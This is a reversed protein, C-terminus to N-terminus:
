IYCSLLFHDDPRSNLSDLEVQPLRFWEGVERYDKFEEHLAEEAAHYDSSLFIRYIELKAPSATYLSKIRGSPDKSKGIKYLGNDAKLVYVYGVNHKIGREKYFQTVKEVENM